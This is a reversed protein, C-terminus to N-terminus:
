DLCEYYIVLFTYTERWHSKKGTPIHQTNNTERRWLLSRLYVSKLPPLISSSMSTQITLAQVTRQGHTTPKHTPVQPSSCRPQLHATPWLQGSRAPWSLSISLNCPGLLSGLFWNWHLCCLSKVIRETVTENPLAELRTPAPYKNHNCCAQPIEM